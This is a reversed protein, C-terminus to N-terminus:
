FSQMSHSTPIDTSITELQLPLMAAWNTITGAGLCLVMDDKQAIRSIIYPLEKPEIFEYVSKGTARIKEALVSSNINEIVDEGAAYVQSLVVINADAVSRVYEEMHKQLRSYRHPQIVTIINKPACQKAAKLVTEIEVPHHAYDDIIEIGKASGVRTFRRKVGKFSSLAKIIQNESINLEESVAIASLFNQVNHKGVMPLFLNKYRKPMSSINTNEVITKKTKKTCIDVDFYCGEKTTKINYARIQASEDFGYTVIKRDSIQEALEKVVPHDICLIACGYFPINEIFQIFAKKLNDFTQYHEMHEPDINTIIGITAPLKVFTGDSEDAEVVIWEGKGLKANTNYTNIIGGNIITPDMDAADLLAANMSTTTTKGHTGAIAISKKFRMIEALMEARKIVPINLALATLYEPNKKNVASSVVVVDAKHVHSGEHGIFIRIGMKELRQVNANQQVDSGQIKYGLNHLIEAIGSMGIGGIGIFHVTKAIDFALNM